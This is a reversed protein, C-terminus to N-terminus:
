YFFALDYINTPAVLVLKNEGPKQFCFFLHCFEDEFSSGIFIIFQTEIDLYKVDICRVFDVIAHTFARLVCIRILHLM